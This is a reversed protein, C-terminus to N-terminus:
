PMEAVHEVRLRVRGVWRAAAEPKDAAIFDGIAVLDGLALNTRRIM